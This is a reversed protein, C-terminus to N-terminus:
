LRKVYSYSVKASFKESSAKCVSYSADRQNMTFGYGGLHELLKFDEERENDEPLRCKCHRTTCTGFFAGFATLDLNDM